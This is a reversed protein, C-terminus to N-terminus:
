KLNAVWILIYNVGVRGDLNGGKELIRLLFQGVKSLYSIGM